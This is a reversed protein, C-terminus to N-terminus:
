LASIFLSKNLFDGFQPIREFKSTTAWGVKTFSNEYLHKHTGSRQFVILWWKVISLYWNLTISRTSPHIFINREGASTLARVDFDNQVSRQIAAKSTGGAVNFFDNVYRYLEGSTMSPRVTKLLRMFEKDDPQLHKTGACYSQFIM